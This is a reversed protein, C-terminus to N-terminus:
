FEYILRAFLNTGYGPLRARTAIDPNSARNYGSLHDEYQRDFVNDVGVAFQLASTAQWTANINIVGYGDTAQENNAASVEDQEAYVINEVEAAWENAAYGLRFTANLPPIRYLDDSSGGGRTGRVYNILGSLSWHDSLRWAWDLDFGYLEADVNTFQLPSPNSTGNNSNMMTVFMLAPAVTSPTGQIYNDIKKYFFRPSLTLGNNSFDLGFEMERAREPDLDLNGTYTLGDALGGTAELPLWLYRELYSPSRHKQAVGIYWTSSDNVEFWTKAVLDLNTDNQSRDSSNFNDRLQQAPPMMSAPTGNVEDADMTVRNYRIGFEARWQQNFNHQRELFAGLVERKANNFNAVFFMPNNPNSINSDHEESFGDYGLIWAGDNDRLTTSLKGGLNDSSVDNRRQMMPAPASRLHYNSMSHELDSGYISLAIQLEDSNDFNYSVNFLEGEISEIDMPLAPTGAEGTDNVGYDLQLTHDGSRFGYGLDYRQREYETPTIDGRPFEADNATETMAAAKLRHQNNSAYLATNLHYGDNVSQASGVLRGSLEFDESASFEGRRTKADIAGGISEQAVSVPAIGRYIELSELQAGVAYSLPPDMWNPGTPALQSGDLSTAIRPGFMGRYAPMGTLPGNSIVTVGPAKRMLQAVDPSIVLQSTVDITRTDHSATIVLEEIHDARTTATIATAAIALYLASRLM